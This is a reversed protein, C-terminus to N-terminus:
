HQQSYKSFTTFTWTHLNIDDRIQLAYQAQVRSVDFESVAVKSSDYNPLQAANQDVPEEQRWPQLSPFQPLCPVVKAAGPNHLNYLRPVKAPVTQTNLTLSIVTHAKWPRKDSSSLRKIFLVLLCYFPTAFYCVTSIMGLHCTFDKQGSTGLNKFVNVKHQAKTKCVKKSKLKRPRM